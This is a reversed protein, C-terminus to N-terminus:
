ASSKNLWEMFAEPTYVNIGEFHKVVQKCNGILDDVYFVQTNDTFDYFRMADKINEWRYDNSSNVKFWHKENAYEDPLYPSPSCIAIKHGQEELKILENTPIVGEVYQGMDKMRDTLLTGDVDFCFLM